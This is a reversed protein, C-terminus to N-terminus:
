RRDQRLTEGSRPDIKLKWRAGDKTAYVEIEGHEREYKEITYGQDRLSTRIAEDDMGPRTEPGRRMRSDAAVVAGTAADLQLEVRRDEKVAYVEIQSTKQEFKTMDYGSEKLAAAISAADTGLVAGLEPEVALAPGALLLGTLGVAAFASRRM